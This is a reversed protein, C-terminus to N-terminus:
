NILYEDRDGTIEDFVIIDGNCTDHIGYKKGDEVYTIRSHNNKVKMLEHPADKLINKLFMQRIEKVRGDAACSNCCGTKGPMLLGYVEAMRKIIKNATLILVPTRCYLVESLEVYSAGSVLIALSCGNIFDMYKEFPLVGCKLNVTEMDYGLSELRNHFYFKFMIEDFAHCEFVLDSAYHDRIFGLEEDTACRMDGLICVPGSKETPKVPPFYRESQLIVPTDYMFRSVPLVHDLLSLAINNNRLGLEAMDICVDIEDDYFLNNIEEFSYSIIHRVTCCEEFCRALKNLFINNFYIYIDCKERLIDVVEFIIAPDKHRQIDTVFIGVRKRKNCVEKTKEVVIQSKYEEKLEECNKHLPEIGKKTYIDNFIREMYISEVNGAKMVADFGRCAIKYTLINHELIPRLPINEKMHIDANIKSYEFYRHCFAYYNIVNMVSLEMRGYLNKAKEYEGLVHYLLALNTQVSQKYEDACEKELSELWLVAQQFDRKLFCSKAKSLGGIGAEDTWGDGQTIEYRGEM